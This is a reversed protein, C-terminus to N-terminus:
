AIAEVDGTLLLPACDRVVDGTVVWQVEDRALEKLSEGYDKVLFVKSRGGDKSGVNCWALFLANGNTDVASYVPVNDITIPVLTILQATIPADATLSLRLRSVGYASITDPFYHFSRGQEDQTVISSTSLFSTGPGAAGSSGASLYFNGDEAASLSVASTTDILTVFGDRTANGATSTNSSTSNSSPASGNAVALMSALSPFVYDAPGMYSATASDSGTDAAADTTAAMVSASITPSPMADVSQPSTTTPPADDDRKVKKRYYDTPLISVDDIRIQETSGVGYFCNWILSFPAYVTSRDSTWVLSPDYGPYFSDVPFGM